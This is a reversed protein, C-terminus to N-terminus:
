RAEKGNEELLKIYGYFEFVTVEKPDVRFKMEKSVYAVAKHFDNSVETVMAEYERKYIEAFSERYKKGKVWISYQEKAWKKRLSIYKQYHDPTGFEKIFESYIKEWIEILESEKMEGEYCLKYIAKDSIVANFVGIPCDHISVYYKPKPKHFFLSM